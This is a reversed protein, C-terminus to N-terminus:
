THSPGLNKNSYLVSIYELSLSSREPSGRAFISHEPLALLAQDADKCFSYRFSSYVHAHRPARMHERFILWGILDIKDYTKM